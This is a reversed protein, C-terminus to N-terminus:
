YNETTFRSKNKREEIGRQLNDNVEKFKELITDMYKELGSNDIEEQTYYHFDYDLHSPKKNVTKPNFKALKNEYIVFSKDVNKNNYDMLFIKMAKKRNIKSYGLFISRGDNTADKFMISNQAHFTKIKNYIRFIDKDLSNYSLKNIHSKFYQFETDIKKIKDSLTTLNGPINDAKKERIENIDKQRLLIYDIYKKLEKKLAFLHKYIDLSDIEKQSFYDLIENKERKNAKHTFRMSSNKKKKKDRNIVLQKEDIFIITKPYKGHDIRLNVAIDEGNQGINKFELIRSGAIGKKLNNYGNKITSRTNCSKAISKITSHAYEFLDRIENLINMNFDGLTGKSSLPICNGAFSINKSATNVTKNQQSGYYNITEFSIKM